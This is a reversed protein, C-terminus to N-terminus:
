QKEESEVISKVTEKFSKISPLDDSIYDYVRGFDVKGYGHILLNRFRAMDKLVNAVSADLLNNKNLIDFCEAYETPAKKLKKASIHFCIDIIAETLIVFGAYAIYKYDTNGMFDERSISKYKELQGIAEDIEKCKKFIKEINIKM